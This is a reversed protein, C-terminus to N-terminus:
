CLRALRDSSQAILWHVYTQAFPPSRIGGDDALNAVPRELGDGIRMVEWRIECVRFHRGFKEAAQDAM